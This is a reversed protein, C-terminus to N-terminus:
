IAEFRRFRAQDLGWEPQAAWRVNERHLTQLASCLMSCGSWELSRRPHQHHGIGAGGHLDIWVLYM